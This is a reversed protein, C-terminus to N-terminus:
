NGLTDKQFSTWDAQITQAFKEPTIKLNILNQAAQGGVALLDPTAFNIYPLIANNQALQKYANAMDQSVNDKPFNSPDVAMAPLGGISALTNEAATNSMYDLFAAAVDHNASKTTISYAVSGGTSQMPRGADGPMVFMGVNAGLKQAMSPVWWSGSVFFLGTGAQFKALADFISTASPSSPFAGAKALDQMRQAGAIVGPNDFTLSPDAGYLWNYMYTKDVSTNYVAQQMHGAPWQEQDGYEIPPIGAAKAAKVAALFEDWTTPVSLKLKALNAKNYYVGLFTATYPVAFLVGTGWTHCNPSFSNLKVLPQPFRQTWGYEKDYTDLPMIVSAACLPGMVGWGQDMDVINPPNSGSLALPLTVRLDNGSKVVRKITVNPYLQQYGAILKDIGPNVGEGEDWIVLTVAGAKSVDFSGAPQASPAATPAATAPAASTLTPQPAVPSPTTSANCGAVLVGILLLAGIGRGHKASSRYLV